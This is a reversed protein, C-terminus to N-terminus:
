RISNRLRNKWNDVSEPSDFWYEELLPILEYEVVANLWSDTTEDSTCFYSHGISFGSGLSEDHSIVENLEEITSILRNFKRNNKQELYRLFGASKFAPQLTFFAFRRRLAYDMMALSRDATNMMGIIHLNKPISFSEDTYLLSISEGRQENEMLMFLEGFIKSINGRNIEDIIFFYDKGPNAAAQMCFAYFPGKKLHFGNECPRYGMIFDEYGYSQHFQIMKIRDNDKCGMISWALRRASFTKGVGPAGQLIINKKRLLMERLKQYDASSLYVEALFDAETYASCTPAEEEAAHLPLETDTNGGLALASIAEALEDRLKWIFQGDKGDWGEFPICWYVTEQSDKRKVEFRNLHKVINKGLAKVVGNFPTGKHNPHTTNMIDRTSAQHGPQQYWAQVMQLANPKFIDPMQLMEQWEEVTIDIDIHYKGNEKSLILQKRSGALKMEKNTKESVLWAHHSFEVFNTYPAKNAKIEQLIDDTMQLYEEAAPVTPRNEKAQAALHSSFEGSTEIYWRNRGDLSLYCNPRIWFLAMTLNWKVSLQKEVIDYWKEFREKSENSPSDAHHIAAEYMEWLNDIDNAGRGEYFAYFTSKQPNLVPIGDFTEPGNLPLDLLRMFNTLIKRRNAYTLTKNFMGFVTFPCIDTLPYRKDELTPLPMDASEYTKKIIEILVPRNHKFSLLKDAVKQYIEVWDYNTAKTSSDQATVQM